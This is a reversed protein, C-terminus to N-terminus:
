TESLSERIAMWIKGLNNDGSRFCRLCTCNGWFQDHWWNIECLNADGTSILAMAIEPHDMVKQQVLTRMVAVKHEEWVALEADSLKWRRGLKKAKGPGVRLITARRWPHAMHKAAQFESEVNTGDPEVYFNSLWNHVTKGGERKVFWTDTM